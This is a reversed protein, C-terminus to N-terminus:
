QEVSQTAPAIHDFALEYLNPIPILRTAVTGKAFRRLELLAGSVQGGRQDFLLNGLSGLMLYEGGRPAEIGRSAQHSHAGIIIGVGCKHLAEAAGYQAPNADRRYEDGWHVFAILPSRSRTDCLKQLEADSKIVPYGKYDRAGIFNIAVVGMQGFEVPRMHLLPNIRARKLTAVAEKLGNDGLDHSHNNALSVAQVNLSKLIQLTLSAHMVHLNEAVGPPPANLPVGELNVVLPAGATVSRIKEVLRGAIAPEALPQTFWRGVFTDGGFYVAEQDGYRLRSGVELQPSYVTVIYTTVDGAQAGFDSSDRNAIVTAAAKYIEAQLRMQIYQAAKSDLHDPQILGNVADLNGSALVNLTEQDRSVASALPLYHSYDTSQVVLTQDGTFQRLEQVARDWDARTSAYSAAIPVVKANPFFHKVFPLLAEIGHEKDFLDSEDFLERDGLLSDTV